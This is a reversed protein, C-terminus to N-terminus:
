ELDSIAVENGNVIVTQKIANRLSKPAGEYKARGVYGTGECAHCYEQVGHQGKCWPCISTPFHGQLEQEVEDIATRLRRLQTLSRPVDSMGNGAILKSILRRALSVNRTADGMISQVTAVQELFTETVEIGLLDLVHGPAKAEGRRLPPGVGEALRKQKHRERLERLKLADFTIGMENALLRLAASHASESKGKGKMRLGPNLRILQEATTKIRESVSYGLRSDEWDLRESDAARRMLELTYDDCEILRVMALETHNHMLAAIRRLGIGLQMDSYRVTPKELLGVSQISAALREIGADRLYLGIDVGAPMKLRRIEVERFGLETVPQEQAETV